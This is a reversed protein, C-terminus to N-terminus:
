ELWEGWDAKISNRQTSIKYVGAASVFAVVHSILVAMWVGSIGLTTISLLFALPMRIILYYFLMLLMGVTPKGMGNITGLLCNTLTNFVYGISIVLFYTSVIAAVAETNAFVGSLPKAFAVVLASLILVFGGGYILACKLYDKARDIRKGGICQRVISTLVMNFAM